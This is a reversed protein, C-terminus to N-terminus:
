AAQSVAAGCPATCLAIATLTDFDWADIPQIAAPRFYDPRATFERGKYDYGTTVTGRDGLMSLAVARAALGMALAADDPGGPVEHCLKAAESALAAVPGLKACAPAYKEAALLAAGLARITGSRSVLLRAPGDEHDVLHGGPLAWDILGLYGEERRQADPHMGLTLRDLSIPCREAVSAVINSILPVIRDPDM